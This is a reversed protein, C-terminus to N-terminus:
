SPCVGSSKAVCSSTLLRNNSAMGCNAVAPMLGGGAADVEAEFVVPEAPSPWPVDASASLLVRDLSGAGTASDVPLSTIDNSL